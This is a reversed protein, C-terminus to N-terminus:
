KNTVDQTYVNGFRDTVRIQMKANKDKPTARFMHETPMPGIWSYKIKSKDSCKVKTLPDHGTYREFDATKEGNELLEVKWKTDYNWVNATIDNPHEDNEGLGYAHFQYNRDHSAGKYYWTVDNGDVEYVAYGRPTGDLCEPIQYWTGCAAATNHEMISDSVEINLNFHTHGTIIHMKYGNFFNYIAEANVTQEAITINNYTFPKRDPTLRAPIHMILFVLSGKPVTNMDQELWRFTKEDVYGMYFYERGLFFNNNLVIYHADGRNFSYHDPGFYKEFTHHSTEYTRGYYDMDHNGLSRYVPMDLSTMDKIYEPYLWPSDGVIDGCDFGFYDGKTAKITQKLDNVVEMYSELDEKSTVQADTQVFFTHRKGKKKNKTLQFDYNTRGNELAYYFQPITGDKVAVNCDAPTSIYIHTSEVPSLISYDGNDDTYVFNYGDTVPVNKMGKGNVSVKGTITKTMLGQAQANEASLTLFTALLISAVNFITQKM